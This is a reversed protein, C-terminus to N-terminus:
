TQVDPRKYRVYLILGVLTVALVASSGSTGMGFGGEEQPKTLLDGITAGLPRTLVFATWFLITASIRPVYHAVAVLAILSGVLM